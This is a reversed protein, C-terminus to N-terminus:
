IGDAVDAQAAGEAKAMLEAVEAKLQAEIGGSADLSKHAHRSYTGSLFLANNKAQRGADRWYIRFPARKESHRYLLSSHNVRGAVLGNYAPKPRAPLFIGGM